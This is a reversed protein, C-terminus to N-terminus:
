VERGLAVALKRLQEMLAAFKFPKLSQPGDSLAVEPKPHVEILLGDAGAAIGALAMPAVLDWRGTGHSPDVFVPLHTLQKLVPIASLDLTNRTETEYTRIGRECLIIRRNGETAIYEASLLFEQITASLGRKLM